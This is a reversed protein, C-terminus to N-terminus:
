QPGGADFDYGPPTNYVSTNGKYNSLKVLSMKTQYNDKTFMHRAAYVLYDGSRKRDIPEDVQKTDGLSIFSIVRGITKNGNQGQPMTHLGPIMIDIAEQGILKRLSKQIAKSTHAATNYEEYPNKQDYYLLSPALLNFRKTQYKSIAKSGFPSKTDAVPHAEAGLINQLTTDLDYNFSYELAHTPDVFEYTAGLDGDLLLKLTNDNSTATMESAIRTIDVNINANQTIYSSYFYPEAGNISPRRILTYLDYFRLNNDALTAYCYFPSGTLGTARTTIARIAEFINLNPVIYRFAAQMEAANEETLAALVGEPVENATNWNEQAMIEQGRARVAIKQGGFVDRMMDNVIQGPKGQYAKNLFRLTGVFGDYEILNLSIVDDTDTSPVINQVNRVIFRKEIFIDNQHLKFKFDVVETGKFDIIELIRNTDAFTLDGTLYPKDMHEFINFNVIGQTIDVQHLNRETKITVSSLEYEKPDFPKYTSPM